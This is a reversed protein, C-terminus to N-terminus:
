KEMKRKWLNGYEKTPFRNNFDRVRIWGREIQKKYWNLSIGDIKMRVLWSRYSIKNGIGCFWLIRSYCWEQYDKLDKQLKGSFRALIRYIKFTPILEQMKISRSVWQLHGLNSKSKLLTTHSGSFWTHEKVPSDLFFRVWGLDCSRSGGM